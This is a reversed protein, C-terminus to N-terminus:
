WRGIAFWNVGINIENDNKVPRCYDINQTETMTANGYTSIFGANFSGADSFYLYPISKFPVPYSIKGIRVYYMSGWPQNVPSTIRKFGWAYMYGNSFKIYYGAENNTVAGGGTEVITKEWPEDNFYIGGSGTTRLSINGGDMENEITINKSASNPIGVYGSRETSDKYFALYAHNDSGELSLAEGADSKIHATGDVDLAGREWIKGVGIGKDESITLAKKLTGISTVASVSNGYKDTLTLKFSYSKTASIPLLMGTEVPNGMLVEKTSINTWENDNTERQDVTVLLPMGGGYDERYDWEGDYLIDIREPNRTDRNADFKLITPLVYRVTVTQRDLVKWNRNQLVLELRATNSSELQYDIYDMDPLFSFSVDGEDAFIDGVPYGGYEGDLTRVQLYYIDAGSPDKLKVEGEINSNIGITKTHLTLYAGM